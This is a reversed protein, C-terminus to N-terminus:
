DVEMSFLRAPTSGYNTRDCHGDHYAWNVGNNHRALDPVAHDHAVGRTGGVPGRRRGALQGPAAVCRGCNGPEGLMITTSPEKFDAWTWSSAVTAKGSGNFYGYNRAYSWVVMRTPTGSPAPNQPRATSDSPCRFTGASNVYQWIFQSWSWTV